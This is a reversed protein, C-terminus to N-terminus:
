DAILKGEGDEISLWVIRDGRDYDSSLGKLKFTIGNISEIDIGGLKPKFWSKNKVVFSRDVKDIKDIM